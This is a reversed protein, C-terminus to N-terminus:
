MSIYVPSPTPWCAVECEGGGLRARLEWRLGAQTWNQRRQSGRGGHGSLRCALETELGLWQIESQTTAQARGSGQSIVAPTTAKASLAAAKVSGEGRACLAQAMM